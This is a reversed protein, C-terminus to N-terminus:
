PAAALRDIVFFSQRYLDNQRVFADYFEGMIFSAIDAADCICASGGDQIFIIREVADNLLCVTLSILYAVLIVFSIM